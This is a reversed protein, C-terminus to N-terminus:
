RLQKRGHGADWRGPRCSCADRSRVHGDAARRLHRTAESTRQRPARMVGQHAGQADVEQLAGLTRAVACRGLAKPWFDEVIVKLVGTDTFPTLASQFAAVNETDQLFGEADEGGDARAADLLARDAAFHVFVLPPAVGTDNRMQVAARLYGLAVVVSDLGGSLAVVMGDSKELHALCCETLAAACSRDLEFLSQGATRRRKGM